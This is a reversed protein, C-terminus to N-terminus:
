TERLSGNKFIANANKIHEKKHCIKCLLKWDDFNLTYKKHHIQLEKKSGCVECVKKLKIFKEKLKLSKNRILFKEKQLHYQQRMLVKHRDKNNNYWERSNQRLRKKFELKDRKQWYYKKASLRKADIVRKKNLRYYGKYACVKSCYKQTKTNPMFLKQCFECNIKHLESQKKKDFYWQNSACQHCCFKKRPRFDFENYCHIYSCLM